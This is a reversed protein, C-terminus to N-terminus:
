FDLRAYYMQKMSLFMDIIAKCFSISLEEEVM